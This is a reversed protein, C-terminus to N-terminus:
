AKDMAVDPTPGMIPGHDMWMLASGVDFEPTVVGHDEVSGLAKVRPHLPVPHGKVNEIRLKRLM